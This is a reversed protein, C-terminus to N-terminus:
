QPVACPRALVWGAAAAQRVLNMLKNEPNSVEGLTAWCDELVKRVESSPMKLDSM